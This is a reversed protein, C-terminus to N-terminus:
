DMINLFIVGGMKQPASVDCSYLLRMAKQIVPRIKPYRYAIYWLKTASIM